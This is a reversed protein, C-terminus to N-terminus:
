AYNKKKWINEKYWGYLKNRARLNHTPTIPAEIIKSTWDERKFPFLQIIPTDKSIVGEFGDAIAFPVGGPGILDDADIIGSTVFTPSNFRNMPQTVLVSYGKPVKFGWPMEWAQTFPGYGNVKPLQEAYSISRSSMPSMRSSWNMVVEDGIREVAIDCHLKVVYGSITADLFPVCLKLGANSGGDRAMIKDAGLFRKLSKYWEPVSKSASEPPDSLISADKDLAWLIIEKKSM